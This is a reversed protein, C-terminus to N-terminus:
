SDAEYCAMVAAFGGLGAQLSGRRSGSGAIFVRAHRTEVGWRSAPTSLADDDEVFPWSISAQYPHGGPLGFQEELDLPTWTTMCPLGVSNRAILDTVPERCVSDLSKLIGANIQDRFAEPSLQAGLAYPLGLVTVQLLQAGSARLSPGLPLPDSLTPSYVVCPLSVPVLGGETQRRADDFSEWSANIVVGGRFATHTSLAETRLEPLRHVLISATAIAGEPRPAPHNDGLLDELTWPPIAALVRHPRLEQTKGETRYTVRVPADGMPQIQTVRHGTLIKAGASVAATKLARVTEAPGGQPLRSDLTQRVVHQLFSRNLGLSPDLAWTAESRFSLSLLYGRLIDSPVELRIINGLPSEIFADWIDPAVMDRMESRRMLPETITRSVMEGLALSAELFRVYGPVDDTLGHQRLTEADARPDGVLVLDRGPSDPRIILASDSTETVPMEIGLDSLIRTPLGDRQFAFPEVPADGDCWSRHARVLGGCEDDKELVVVSRGSRALYAAATLGNVGGGVILVDLDTAM